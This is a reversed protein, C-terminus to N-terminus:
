MTYDGHAEPQFLIAQVEASGIEGVPTRWEAVAGIRLGLLSSGVPSLVSVFGASPNADWPYCLTLAMPQGSRQDSLVVHSYMTVVDADMRRPEVLLASDLVGRIDPAAKGTGTARVIRDVLNSLRLHDVESLIREQTLAQM